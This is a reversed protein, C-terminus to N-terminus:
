MLNFKNLILYTSHLRSAIDWDYLQSFYAHLILQGIVCLKCTPIKINLVQRHELSSQKWPHSCWPVLVLLSIVNLYSFIGFIKTM